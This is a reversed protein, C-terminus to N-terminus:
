VPDARAWRRCRHVASRSLSPRRGAPSIASGTSAACLRCAPCFNLAQTRSRSISRPNKMPPRSHRGVDGAFRRCRFRDAHTGKEVRERMPAPFCIPSSRARSPLIAVPAHRCQGADALDFRWASHPTWQDLRDSRGHRLRVPSRQVFVPRHVFKKEALFLRAALSVHDILCATRRAARSGGCGAGCQYARDVVSRGRSGAADGVWFGRFADRGGCAALSRYCHAARRFGLSIRWRDRRGDHTRRQSRRFASLGLGFEFQGSAESLSGDGQLRCASSAPCRCISIPASQARAQRLCFKMSPCIRSRFSSGANPALSGKLLARPQGAAM